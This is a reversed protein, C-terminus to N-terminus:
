KFSRAVSYRFAPTILLTHRKRTSFPPEPNMLVLCCCCSFEMLLLILNAGSWVMCHTPVLLFGRLGQTVGKEECMNM